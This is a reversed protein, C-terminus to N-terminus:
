DRSIQERGILISWKGMLWDSRLDFLTRFSRMGSSGGAENKLVAERKKNYKMLLTKM